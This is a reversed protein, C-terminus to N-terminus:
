KNKFLIKYTYFLKIYFFIILLRIFYFWEVNYKQLIINNINEEYNYEKYYIIFIFHFLWAIYKNIRYKFIIYIHVHTLFVTMIVFSPTVSSLLIYNIWLSLTYIFHWVKANIINKKVLTMLFAAIQIAFMPSFATDINGFMFLTAGIQHYSQMTIIENQKIVDISKDFPMNRMTKGNKITKNFSNYYNTVIDTLVLTSSCVFIIYKYNYNYYHIFCCCVSRIAFIISHIRYEAYIMPQQQNRVNSVHFVLSSTSLLGHLFLLYLDFNSKINMNNYYAYYIYRYSYNLLIIGGLIKHLHLSDEYTILKYINKYNFNHEIM